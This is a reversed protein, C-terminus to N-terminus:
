SKAFPAYPSRASRSGIVPTQLCLGWRPGPASGRTPPDSASVSEAKLREISAAFEGVKKKFKSVCFILAEYWIYDWTAIKIAYQLGGIPIFFSRHSVPLSNQLEQQFVAFFAGKWIFDGTFFNEHDPWLPRSADCRLGGGLYAVPGQGCFFFLHPILGMASVHLQKRSAFFSSAHNM